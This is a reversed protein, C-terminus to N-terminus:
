SVSNRLYEHHLNPARKKTFMRYQHKGILIVLHYLMVSSDWRRQSNSSHLGPASSRRTSSDSGRVLPRLTTWQTVSQLHNQFRMCLTFQTASGLGDRMFKVNPRNAHCRSFSCGWKAVGDNELFNALSSKGRCHQDANQSSLYIHDCKLVNLM